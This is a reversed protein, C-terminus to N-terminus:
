AYRHLSAGHAKLWAEARDLNPDLAATVAWFAPSHNMHVLHAVEHAALYDLVHSPAMILRWSFNLEGRATCSGWRSRTDRLTIGRVPRRVAAAHRRVAAEIDTRAERRLFDLVRRHQQEPTGCVVLVPEDGTAGPRRDLWATARLGAGVVIPVDVGRLPVSAGVGLVIKQPLKDLRESIWTAHRDAFQQAARLSGGSPITLVADGLSARVRLTFRRARHARRIAVLFEGGEHTVAISTAPHPRPPSSRFLRLM